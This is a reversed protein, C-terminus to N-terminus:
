QMIKGQLPDHTAKTAFALQSFAVDYGPTDDVEIFHDEPHTSTDEPQEFLNILVKLM